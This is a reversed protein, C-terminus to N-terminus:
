GLEDAYSIVYRPVRDLLCAVFPTEYFAHIAMEAEQFAQFEIFDGGDLLSPDPDVPLEFFMQCEIVTDSDEYDVLIQRAIRIMLLESECLFDMPRSTTRNDFFRQAHEQYGCPRFRGWEFLLSDDSNEIAVSRLFDICADAIERGKAPSALLPQIVTSFHDIADDERM